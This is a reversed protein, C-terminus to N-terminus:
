HVLFYAVVLALITLLLSAVLVLIVRGSIVGQRAEVPQAEIGSARQESHPPAASYGSENDM